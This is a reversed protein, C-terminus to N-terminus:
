WSQNKEALLLCSVESLQERQSIQDEPSFEQRWKFCWLHSRLSSFICFCLSCHHRNSILSGLMLMVFTHHTEFYFNIYNCLFVVASGCVNIKVKGKDVYVVSHPNCPAVFGYELLLRQNDHSGYNIFAQQYRPTGCVSRIEYCRSLDNFSAKVQSFFCSCINVPDGGEWM